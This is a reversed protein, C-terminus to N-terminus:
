IMRDLLKSRFLEINRGSTYSTTTFLVLKNNASEMSLLLMEMLLEAVIYQQLHSSKEIMKKM